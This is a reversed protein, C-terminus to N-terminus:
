GHADIRAEEQGINKSYPGTSIFKQLFASISGGRQRMAVVRKKPNDSSVHWEHRQAGIVPFFNGDIPEQNLSENWLDKKKCIEM